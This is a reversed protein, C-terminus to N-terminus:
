TMSGAEHNTHEALHLLRALLLIVLASVATVPQMWSVYGIIAIQVALWGLVIIGAATAVNSANRWHGFVATAALLLSGGVVGLLFLSPVFYSEFPSGALWETPVDKAGSLGYIGGGLANLAGFALLTGLIYHLPKMANTKPELARLALLTGRRRPGRARDTPASSTTDTMERGTPRRHIQWFCAASFSAPIREIVVKEIM